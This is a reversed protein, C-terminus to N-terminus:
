LRYSLLHRLWPAYQKFMDLAITKEMLEMFPKHLGPAAAAYNPCVLALLLVCQVEVIFPGGSYINLHWCRFREGMPAFTSLMFSPLNDPTTGDPMAGISPSITHLDSLVPLSKILAIVDWLELSLHRLTLVQICTYNGLSSIVPAIENSSPISAIDRVTAGPGISLEFEIADAITAFSDPQIGDLFEVGVHRLSPHSGPTFVKHRCLVNIISDSLRIDLCELTMANGKFFTDDEFSHSLWMRLTRLSPFPVAGRFALRRPAAPAVQDWLKLSFLCPYTVYNGDTDRILGSVDIDTESEITLSQLTLANLRALQIPQDVSFEFTYRIHSLNRIGDLQLEVPVRSDFFSHYDISSVLQFLQSVLSSFHHGTIYYPRAFGSPRVGIKTVVPAMRKVRQVFANINVAAVALSTTDDEDEDDDDSVIALTLTRARPFACGNYPKQSLIDLAKGSYVTREGVDIVIEKALHHTPYGLGLSDLQLYKMDSAGNCASALELRAHCFYLPYAIARFNSCVWLLPRLLTRYEKSNAIIGSSTARSSEVIHHVIRQTVHLPLIQLPSLSHM